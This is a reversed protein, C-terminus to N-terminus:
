SLLRVCEEADCFGKLMKFDKMRLGVKPILEKLCDPEAMTCFLMNLADGDVKNEIYIIIIGILAWQECGYIICQDSLTRLSYGCLAVTGKFSQVVGNSINREILWECIDDVTM